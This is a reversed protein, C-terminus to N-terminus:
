HRFRVLQAEGHDQFQRVLEREIKISPLLHLLSYIKIALQSASHRILM